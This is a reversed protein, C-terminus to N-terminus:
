HVQAHDARPSSTIGLHACLMAAGLEAVLEEFAHKQDGYRRVKERNLRHSAGSWHTLEHFITAYYGEEASSTETARFTDSDPLGIFDKSPRYFANGFGHRINAGTARVFSDAQANCEIPRRHGEPILEFGDVQDANFVTSYRAFMRTEIEAETVTITGDDEKRPKAEIKKWFVIQAGKEGKRVQAGKGQWQKYSAWTGSRYGGKMQFVWLLPVNIGRYHKDTCGNVPMTDFGSWPMQWKDSTQGDEIAEIIKDTVTQHIDQM